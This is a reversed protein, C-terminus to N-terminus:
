LRKYQEKIYNNLDFNKSQAIIILEENTANEIKTLDIVAMNFGNTMATGFYDILDNRLKEFDINEM